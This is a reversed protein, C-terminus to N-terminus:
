GKAQESTLVPAKGMALKKIRFDDEFIRRIISKEM